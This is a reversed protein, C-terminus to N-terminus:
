VIAVLFQGIERLILFKSPSDFFYKPNILFSLRDNFTFGFLIALPPEFTSPSSTALPVIITRSAPDGPIPVVAPGPIPVVAPGPIPVM